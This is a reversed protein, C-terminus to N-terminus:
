SGLDEVTLTLAAGEDTITAYRYSGGIATTWIRGDFTRSERAATLGHRFVYEVEGPTELNLARWPISSAKRLVAATAPQGAPRDGVGIRGTLIGQICQSSTTSFRVRYWQGPELQVPALTAVTSVNASGWNSTTRPATDSGVTRVALVRREISADVPTIQIQSAANANAPVVLNALAIGVRSASQALTIVSLTWTAEDPQAECWIVDSRSGTAPGPSATVVVDLRSGVVASTGDGCGVVGLWGARVIIQLGASPSFVAPWTLGTRHRTVAAIVARDDVADYNGAQGWALKGSPTTM